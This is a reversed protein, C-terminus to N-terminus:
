RACAWHYAYGRSLLWAGMEIQVHVSVHDPAIGLVGFPTESWIGGHPLFQMPGIEGRAGIAYPELNSECQAITIMWEPSVGYLPAVEYIMDAVDQRTLLSASEVELPKSPVGTQLAFAILMAVATTQLM